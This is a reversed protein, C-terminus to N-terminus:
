HLFAPALKQVLTFDMISKMLQLRSSFSTLPVLIKRLNLINHGNSRLREIVTWSKVSPRM